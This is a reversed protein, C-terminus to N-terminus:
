LVFVRLCNNVSIVLSMSRMPAVAAALAPRSEKSRTPSVWTSETSCSRAMKPSERSCGLVEEKWKREMMSAATSSEFCSSDSAPDARTSHAWIAPKPPLPRPRRELGPEEMMADSDWCSKERWIEAAEDGEAMVTAAVPTSWADKTAAAAPMKPLRLPAEEAGTGDAQVPPSERADMDPAYKM